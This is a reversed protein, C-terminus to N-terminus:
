DGYVGRDWEDFVARVNEPKAGAGFECQAVCGGKKWLTAKVDRVASRVEEETGFPLLHQRDIEGDFCIKGAFPALKDVGMCFIQTNFADLGLEVLHPLIALTHGDSHMFIKKGAGHAIDIYDKYLPKFLEVWLDPNILLSQQTGWDDMFNLSDVDTKAWIELSECYFDHMEKLFDTFGKPLFMLDMFLQETGRIFQLQEFPRPCTGGFIFRDKGAREEACFRNVRAADVELQERPIRIRSRDEWEEDSPPVIAEKVEGIVGDQKNQFICGWPDVYRGIRYPDGETPSTRPQFGPAGTFDSPFDRRIRALEEPYHSQAWPLTWLNRPARPPNRYELTDYVLERSTM